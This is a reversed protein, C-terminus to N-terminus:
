KSSHNEKQPRLKQLGVSIIMLLSLVQLWSQGLSVQKHIIKELLHYLLVGGTLSLTLFMVSYFRDWKPNNKSILVRYLKFLYKRFRPNSQGISYAALRLLLVASPIIFILVLLCIIWKWIDFGLINNEM